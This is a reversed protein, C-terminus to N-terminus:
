SVPRGRVLAPYYDHLRDALEAEAAYGAPTNENVAATLIVRTLAADDTLRATEEQFFTSWARRQREDWSTVDEGFALQVGGPQTLRYAAAILDHADQLVRHDVGQRKIVDRRLPTDVGIYQCADNYRERAISYLLGVLSSYLDHQLWMLRENTDGPFRPAVIM